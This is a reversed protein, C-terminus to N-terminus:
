WRRRSFGSRTIHTQHEFRLSPYPLPGFRYDFFEDIPGTYVVKASPYTSIVERYDTSLVVNINPHALM